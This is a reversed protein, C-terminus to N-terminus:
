SSPPTRGPRRRRTTPGSRPCSSRWASCWAGPTTWGCRRRASRRRPSRSRTSSPTPWCRGWADGDEETWFVPIRYREVVRFVNAAEDDETGPEASSEIGPYRSAYYNLYSTAIEELRSSAFQRRADDAAGGRATTEVTLEAPEGRGGARLREVIQVEPAVGQHPSM